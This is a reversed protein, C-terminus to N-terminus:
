AGDAELDSLDEGPNQLTLAVMDHDVHIIINPAPAAVEPCSQKMTRARSRLSVIGESFHQGEAMWRTQRLKLMKASPIVMQVDGIFISVRM